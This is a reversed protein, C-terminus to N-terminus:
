TLNEEDAMSITVVEYDILELAELIPRSFSAKIAENRTAYRGVLPIRHDDKVINIQWQIDM